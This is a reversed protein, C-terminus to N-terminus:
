SVLREEFDKMRDDIYDRHDRLQQDLNGLSNTSQHHSEQNSSTNSKIELSQTSLSKSTEMTLYNSDQNEDGWASNSGRGNASNNRSNQNFGHDSGNM